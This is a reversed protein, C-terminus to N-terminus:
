IRFPSWRGSGPCCGTINGGGKRLLAGQVLAPQGPIVLGFIGEEAKRLSRTNIDTALITVNWDKLDPILKDLLIALSYPEEGTSCGASWFRLRKENQRRADILGALIREELIEFAKKERFFYTEGVTLHSALIEIQNRTPPESSLLWDVFAESDDFNFEALSQIIQRELDGWNKRPFSLGLHRKLYDTLRVLTDHSLNIM